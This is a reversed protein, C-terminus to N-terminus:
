RCNQEVNLNVVTCYRYHLWFMYRIALAFDHFAWAAM